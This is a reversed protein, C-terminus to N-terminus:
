SSAGEGSGSWCRRTAGPGPCGSTSRAPGSLPPAAHRIVGRWIAAARDRDVFAGPSWAATSTSRSTRWRRRPPCRSATSGELESGTDNRFVEEIETRAVNGVIRVKVSHEALHVAQDREVSSGPRRARLEGLGSSTTAEDPSLESWAVRGGLDIAPAVTVRGRALVGEQGTKV